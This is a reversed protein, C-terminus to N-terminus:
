ATFFLLIYRYKNICETLIISKQLDDAINFEKNLMIIEPKEKIMKVISIAPLGDPVVIEISTKEEPAKAEEKKSTNCGVLISLSFLVMLGLSLFKNIKKM